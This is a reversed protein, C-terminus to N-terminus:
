EGQVAIRRPQHDPTRPLTVTLVGNVLRASVRDADVEEPLQVMRSFAARRRECRIPEGPASCAKPQFDDRTAITLEDGALTIDLDDLGYGPIETEVYFAEGDAWANLLPFTESIPRTFRGTWPSAALVEDFFRNMDSHLSAPRMMPNLTNQM